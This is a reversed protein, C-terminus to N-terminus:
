NSLDNNVTMYINASHEWAITRSKRSAAKTTLWEFREPCVLLVEESTRIFTIDNPIQSTTFNILGAWFFLKSFCRSNTVDYYPEISWRPDNMQFMALFKESVIKIKRELHKKVSIAKSHRWLSKM